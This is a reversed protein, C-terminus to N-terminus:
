GVPRKEAAGVQSEIRRGESSNPVQGGSGKLVGLGSDTLGGRGRSRVWIIEEQHLPEGYQALSSAVFVLGPTWGSRANGPLRRM